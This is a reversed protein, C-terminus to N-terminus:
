PIGRVTENGIFTENFSAGFTFLDAMGEIRSSNRGFFPYGHMTKIEQLSCNKSEEDIAMM